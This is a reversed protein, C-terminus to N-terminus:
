RQVARMWKGLAIGLRVSIAAYLAAMALGIALTLGHETYGFVRMRDPIFSPEMYAFYISGFFRNNAAPSLLFRAFPWQVAVWSGVFLVGSILSLATPNIRTEAEDVPAFRQWLLDMLIAPVIMLLPFKPPVFHTVPYFVPGLRPTAPFLPLVLIFGILVATYIAMSITSTWRHRIARFLAMMILPTGIAVSKYALSRHQGVESTMEMRFFFNLVMLVGAIYLMIRQMRKFTASGANAIGAEAAIGAQNMYSLLLVVSGMCIVFVGLMLLAHPPSLIKVDLGYTDHWWNDFPASTIMAVGGWACLFAGIPGRLGFINVSRQVMGPTRLFTTKLILYASATGSLIGCAYICMHAPTWFTDRGISRHWSVDWHAGIMVSTAALVAFWLYWPVGFMTLERATERHAASLTHDTTASNHVATAM